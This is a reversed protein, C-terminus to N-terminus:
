LPHFTVNASPRPVAATQACRLRKRASQESNGTEAVLERFKRKVSEIEELPAKNDLKSLVQDFANHQNKWRQIRLKHEEDMQKMEVELNM